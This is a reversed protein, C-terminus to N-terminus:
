WGPAARTIEHYVVPFVVLVLLILFGITGLLDLVLAWINLCKATSAYSQAGIVDGVMKQDRSKVSYTFAVFCMCCVNFFLTNFLSWVNHDPVTTEPQINVVTTTVPASVQPAGLLAVEHEEKLMGYSPPVGAHPGTFFRQSKLNM